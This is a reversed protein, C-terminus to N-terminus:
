WGNSDLHNMVNVLWGSPNAADANDDSIYWGDVNAKGVSEVANYTVSGTGTDYTHSFECMAISGAMQGHADNVGDKCLTGFTAQNGIQSQTQTVVGSGAAAGILAYKAMHCNEYWLVNTGGHSSKPCDTAVNGLDLAPTELSFDGISAAEAAFAPMYTQPKQQEITPTFSWAENDYVLCSGAPYTANPIVGNTVDAVLQAESTYRLCGTTSYGNDVGKSTYSTSTVYSASRNFFYSALTSSGQPFQNTMTYNNGMWHHTTAASAPLATVGCLAFAAATAM